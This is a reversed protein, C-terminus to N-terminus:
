FNQNQIFSQTLKGKHGAAFTHWYKWDTSLLKKQPYNRPNRLQIFWWPKRTYGLHLQVLGIMLEAALHSSAGDVTASM